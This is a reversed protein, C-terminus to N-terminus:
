DEEVLILEEIKEEFIVKELNKHYNMVVVANDPINKMLDKLKKVTM